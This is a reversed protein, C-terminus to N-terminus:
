VSRHHSGRARSSSDARRVTGDRGERNRNRRSLILDVGVATAIGAANAIFDVPDYVNAMVGFGDTFEFAEVLCLVILVVVPRGVRHRAAASIAVFYLAFSVAFNGAYAYILDEMPGHYMPKLVLGAVGLLAFAVNRLTKTEHM